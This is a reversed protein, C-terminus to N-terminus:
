PGGSARGWQLMQEACAGPGCYAHRFQQQWLGDLHCLCGWCKVEGEAVGCRESLVAALQEQQCTSRGVLQLQLTWELPGTWLVGKLSGVESEAVTCRGSFAELLQEQQSTSRGVQQLQQDKQQTAQLLGQVKDQLQATAARLEEVEIGEAQLGPHLALSHSM